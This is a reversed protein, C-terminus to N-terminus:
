DNQIPGISDNFNPYKKIVEITEDYTRQGEEAEYFYNWFLYRVHLKDRAFLFIDEMTLYGGEDMPEEVEHSLDNRYHRYSDDQASSFLTLRDKYKDFLPYSRENYGKHYPLIDPGGLIVGYKEVSNIIKHLNTAKNDDKTIFNGYWFVRSKPMAKQFGSIIDILSNRYDSISYHYKRSEEKTMDLASEQLAVGEFNPNSDFRKGIEEGLKILRRKVEPNWRLPIFGGTDTPFEYESLYGPLAGRKTFSRDVLFVVLQKNHDALFKIDNEILSFDYTDKAPELDNWRYRKSVGIVGPEDLSKIESVNFDPVVAVYHGPHFKMDSINMEYENSDCSSSLFVLFLLPILLVFSIFRKYVSRM